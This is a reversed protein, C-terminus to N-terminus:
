KWNYFFFLLSVIRVIVRWEGCWGRACFGRLIDSSHPLLQRGTESPFGVKARKPRSRQPFVKGRGYNEKIRKIEAGKGYKQPRPCRVAVLGLSSRTGRASLPQKNKKRVSGVHITGVKIKRAYLITLRENWDDRFSQFTEILRRQPSFLYSLIYIASITSSHHSRMRSDNLFKYERHRLTYKKYTHFIYIYTYFIVSKWIVHCCGTQQSRVRGWSKCNYPETSEESIKRKKSM